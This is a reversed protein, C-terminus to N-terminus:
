KPVKNCHGTTVEGVTTADGFLEKVAEALGKYESDPGIVPGAARLLRTPGPPLVGHGCNIASNGAASNEMNGPSGWSASACVMLLSAIMMLKM